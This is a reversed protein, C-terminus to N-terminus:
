VNYYSRCLVFLCIFSALFHLIRKGTLDHFVWVSECAKIVERVTEDM